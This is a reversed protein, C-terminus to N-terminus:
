RDIIGGQFGQIVLYTDSPLQWTEFGISPSKASGPVIHSEAGERQLEPPSQGGSDGGLLILSM